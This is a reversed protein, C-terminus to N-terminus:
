GTTKENGPALRELAVIFAARRLDTGLQQAREYVAVAADTMKQQLRARVDEASWHEQKLNQEWEFFSVTVGGANALIDPIVPIGRAYLADDADPTTPGNALEVVARAKVGVVTDARLQNELAAPILVDCDVSLVDDAPRTEADAFDKVSGTEKKHALVADVDLGHENVITAKSDSLAVVIHGGAKWLAAAHQGVNGFGQVAVRCSAPLDLRERLADFVFFGGQGTAAERGESGGQTLRKGTFTARTTDGTIRAYEDTMWDMVQANTNVDPAPVDKHPGIVDAFARVFARALREREADSLAKADVTVGGKGGGLPLGLVATKLTMWFALARVEDLDANAHFRIGGKFPGRANHHQVRYAQFFRLSGDDMRVPLCAHIERMPHTLQTRLEPALPSVADARNLQTLANEFPSSTM